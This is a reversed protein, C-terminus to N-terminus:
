SKLGNNLVEKYLEDIQSQIYDIKLGTRYEESGKLYVIEYYSDPKCLESVRKHFEKQQETTMKDLSIMVANMIYLVPPAAPTQEENIDENYDIKGDDVEDVEEGELDGDETIRIKQELWETDSEDDWVESVDKVEVVDAIKNSDMYRKVAEQIREMHTMHKREKKPIMSEILTHTLSDHTVHKAVEEPTHYKSILTTMYDNLTGNRYNNLVDLYNNDSFTLIGKKYREVIEDRFPIDVEYAADKGDYWSNIFAPAAFFPPAGKIDLEMCEKFMSIIEEKPISKDYSLLIEDHIPLMMRVMPLMVGDYDKPKDWGKKRIYEWVKTEVIKLMQAATGQVPTNNGSRILSRKRKKDLTPDLLQPFYRYYHFATKIFGNKELYSENAALFQKIKPLGNFFDTIKQREELVNEKTYGPGFDRAALGFETMMYVVGFNVSKGKKRDEESILYMPKGQIISLIARHIDVDPDCELKILDEQGALWALVRLEVQKWDCSVLGHHPSDAVVCSKMTDNFQHADSTQRNSGAGSQNIYFMFRNKRSHNNIRELAGREKGLLKYKQYLVLSPYKNTSLDKGSVLVNNDKDVIDGVKDEESAEKSAHSVIYDIADKSTSPLGKSTRVKVPCQLKDYLISRLVPYSNINESTHHAKQFLVKLMEENDRTRNLLKNLREMDIPLGYYENMAKIYPLQMELSLVYSEDKPFKQMLYKYVKAPSTADPCGYLKVIEPPLVNFQVPGIFIQELTLYFRDDVKAALAKLTHTGKKVMPDVLVALLYTDIDFRVYDKLEHYFGEIEFKVNHALLIVEPAPPQNNIADFIRKIWSVDLNFDFNDQRIPFYWSWHEGFGLFIGTIGNESFVGWEKDMSEIDFSKLQEKSKVWIDLKEIAEEESSCVGYDERLVHSVQPYMKLLEDYSYHGKTNKSTALKVGKNFDTTTYYDINIPMNYTSQDEEDIQTFVISGDETEFEESDKKLGKMVLKYRMNNNESTKEKILFISGDKMETKTTTIGNFHIVQEMIQMATNLISRDGYFYERSKFIYCATCNLTNFFSYNAADQTIDIVNAGKSDQINIIAYQENTEFSTFLGFKVM